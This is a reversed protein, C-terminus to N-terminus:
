LGDFLEGQIDHDGLVFQDSRFPRGHYLNEGATVGTMQGDAPGATSPFTVMHDAFALQELLSQRHDDSFTASQDGGFASSLSASHQRQQQHHDHSSAFSGQDAVASIGSMAAFGHSSSSDTDLFLPSPAPPSPQVGGHSGARHIIGYSRLSGTDPSPFFDVSGNSSPALGDPSIFAWSEDDAPMYEGGQFADLAALPSTGSSAVSAMTYSIPTHRLFTYFKTTTKPHYWPDRISGLTPINHPAKHSTCKEKFVCLRNWLRPEFEM